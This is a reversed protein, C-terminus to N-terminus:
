LEFEVMKSGLKNLQQRASLLEDKWSWWQSGPKSLRSRGGGIFCVAHQARTVAVYFIRAEEQLFDRRHKNMWEDFQPSPGRGGPLKLDMGRGPIDFFTPLHDDNILSRQLEPIVIIPYELGKASHITSFIVANIKKEEGTDAEDLKEGTLMAVQFRDFFQQLTLAESDMQDRAWMVLKELNAVAQMNGKNAYYERVSTFEYIKTLLNPVLDIKIRKRIEMIGEFWHRVSPECKLWDCLPDSSHDHNLLAVPSRFPMFPTGLVLDLSVDDPYKIIAQLMYYCYLIEPKCFFRGGVDTIVPIGADLFCTEYQSLLNNSRFLFCIDGYEITRKGQLFHDIKQEPLDRVLRIARKIRDELNNGNVHIYRFPILNDQPIYAGEPPLTLSEEFFAYRSSMNYFLVNQAEFLPKTPRRSASLFMMKEGNDDAMSQLISFDAGRFGYISQKRDGVVLVHTLHPVLVQIIRKQLQDTDQFEDVFLYSFRKALMCGVYLQNKELLQATKQLLDNTDLGSISKKILNYNHEIKKLMLVVANRYSSESDSLQETTEKVVQNIERGKGRIYEYIQKLYDRMQYPFWDVDDTFLIETQLDEIGEQMSDKMAQDFHRNAILVDTEHSIYEDYGFNRLIMSCFRHITGIFASALREKQEFWHQLAKQDGISEAQIIREDIGIELRERMEDSAKNTFTILAFDDINAQYIYSTQQIDVLHLVAAVMTRTKGSGAGASVVTVKGPSCVHDVIAAQEDSLEMGGRLQTM